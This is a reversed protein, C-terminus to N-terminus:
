SFLTNKLIPIDVVMAEVCEKKTKKIQEEYAKKWYELKKQYRLGDKYPVTAIIIDKGISYGTGKWIASGNSDFGDIEGAVVYPFLDYKWFAM